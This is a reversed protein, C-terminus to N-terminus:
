RKPKKTSKKAKKAKKKKSKHSTGCDSDGELRDSADCDSHSVGPVANGIPTCAVAGCCLLLVVIAVVAIVVKTKTKV